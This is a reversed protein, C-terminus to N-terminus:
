QIIITSSQRRNGAQVILFYQGSPWSSTNLQINGAFEQTSQLEMTQGLSNIVSVQTPADNRNFTINLHATAPNPFISLSTFAKEEVGVSLHIVGIADLDFGGSAFPTPFPDNIKRGDSDYTAYQDDLTGVVDILRIHTVADVDLGATGALEDLDFPAGYGGRYKGAFNYLETPDVSGFGDVEVTTDTLSSCPFRFFNVGDSSVEVFALELFFDSFSNEFVAFDPGPGNFVVGDFQLTATGGDGLSVIGNAQAMGTGNSDIGHSANGAGAQQIDQPGREVICQTAWGIFASSDKFMATTGPEGAAPAFPGQALAFQSVFCALVLVAFRM